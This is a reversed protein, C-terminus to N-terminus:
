SFLVDAVRMIWHDWRGGLFGAWTGMFTGVVAGVATAAISILLSVYCGQMIRSLIDRGFEDTGLVHGTVLSPPKLRHATDMAMPDFPLWFFSVVIAALYVGIIILGTLAIANKTIRPRAM